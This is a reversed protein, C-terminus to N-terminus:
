VGPCMSCCSQPARSVGVWAVVQRLKSSAPPVTGDSPLTDDAELEPERNHSTWTFQPVYGGRPIGILIPDRSGSLLYYRELERRLRGAEIRVVPDNQADFSGDRGFVELAISFAKIRDARGQLTEEIIYKLFQRSRSPTNFDRSNLIRELQARVDPEPPQEEPFGLQLASVTSM